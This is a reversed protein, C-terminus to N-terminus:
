DGTLSGAPGPKGAPTETATALVADVMARWDIILQATDISEGPADQAPNAIGAAVLADDGLDYEAGAKDECQLAAVLMEVSPVRIHQLVRVVEAPSLGTAAAIDKIKM